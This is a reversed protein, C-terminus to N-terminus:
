RIKRVIGENANVEVIDGDKLVKTAIKTGIVCAKGMERSIIAAHCLIGGEDTVFAAAKEMAVIYDPTTMSAVLIDGKQVKNLDKKSHVVKVTGKERGPSAMAGRIETIEKDIEEPTEKKKYEELEEGTLITINDKHRIFGFAKKRENIKKSFDKKDILAAKIEDFLLYFMDDMTMSLKKAIEKFLPRAWFGYKVFTDMRYTRFYVLEKTAKVLERFKKDAKIEDLVEKTRNKIEKPNDLLRRLREDLNEKQMAYIREKVETDKWADGFFGRTNIWGFKAIHKKIDKSIDKGSKLNIAIRIMSKLELNGENDRAPATLINFYEKEGGKLKEKIVGEVVNGIMIPSMLATGLNSYTKKLNELEKILEEDTKGSYDTTAIEKSVRELEEASDYWKDLMLKFFKAGKSAYIEKIFKNAENMDDESYSIEYEISRYFDFGFDAGFQRIMEDKRAGQNIFEFFLPSLVRKVLFVWKM